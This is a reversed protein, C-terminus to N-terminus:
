EKRHFNFLVKLEDPPLLTSLRETRHDEDIPFRRPPSYARELNEAEMFYYVSDEDNSLFCAESIVGENELTEMAEPERRKLEECWKVWREKQGDKIRYKVLVVETM